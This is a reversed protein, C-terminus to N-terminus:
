KVQKMVLKTLHWLIYILLMHINYYIKVSQSHDSLYPLTPEIDEERGYWVVKTNKYYDCNLKGFCFVTHHNNGFKKIKNYLITSKM